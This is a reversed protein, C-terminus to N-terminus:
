VLFVAQATATQDVQLVFTKTDLPFNATTLPGTSTAGVDVILALLLLQNVLREIWRLEGNTLQRRETAAKGVKRGSRTDGTATLRGLQTLLAPSVGLTKAVGQRGNHLDELV